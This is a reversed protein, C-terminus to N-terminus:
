FQEAAPKLGLVHHVHVDRSGEHIRISPRTGGLGAQVKQIDSQEQM